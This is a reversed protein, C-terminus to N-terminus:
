GARHHCACQRSMIASHRFPAAQPNDGDPDGRRDAPALWKENSIRRRQDANEGNEPRCRSRVKMAPLCPASRGWPRDPRSSVLIPYEANSGAIRSLRGHFAPRMTPAFRAGPRPPNPRDPEPEVPFPTKAVPRKEVQGDVALRSPAVNLFDPDESRCRSVAVVEELTAPFLTKRM